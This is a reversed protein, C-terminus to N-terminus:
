EPKIFGQPAKDSKAKKKGKSDDAARRKKGGKRRERLDQKMTDMYEDEQQQAKRDRQDQKEKEKQEAADQETQKNFEKFSQRGLNPRTDNFALYSPQYDVRIKPKQVQDTEYELVWEAETIIRKRERELEEQKEKELSRQMFKMGLLRNSPQKVRKDAM